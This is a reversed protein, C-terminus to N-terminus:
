LGKIFEDFDLYGNGDLDFCLMIKHYKEKEKFDMIYKTYYEKVGDLFKNKVKFNFVAESALFFSDQKELRMRKNFLDYKHLKNLKIRDSEKKSLIKKLFELYVPKQDLQIKSPLDFEPAYKAKIM